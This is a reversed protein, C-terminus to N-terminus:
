RAPIFRLSDAVYRFRNHEQRTLRADQIPGEFRFDDPAFSYTREAVEIYESAPDYAYSRQIWLGKGPEYSVGARREDTTVSFKLVLSDGVLAYYESFTDIVPVSQTPFALTFKLEHIGDADLDVFEVNGNHYHCGHLVRKALVQLNEDVVYCAIHNDGPLLGGGYELWIAWHANFQAVHFLEAIGTTVGEYGWPIENVMHRDLLNMAAWRYHATDPDDHHMEVLTDALNNFWYTSSDKPHEGFENTGLSQEGSTCSLVLTVILTTISVSRIMPIGHESVVM